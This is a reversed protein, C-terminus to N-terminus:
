PRLSKMQYREDLEVGAVQAAQRLRHLALGLGQKVNRKKIREVDRRKKDLHEQEAKAHQRKLLARLEGKSISVPDMDPRSDHTIFVQDGEVREIHFHGRRGKWTLRFAAGEVFAGQSVKAGHKSTYFYDWERRGTRKNVRKSPRRYDYKKTRAKELDDRDEDDEQDLYHYASQIAGAARDIKSQVWEALDQDDPANELMEALKDAYEALLQARRRTMPVDQYGKIIANM